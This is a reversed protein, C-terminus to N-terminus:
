DITKATYKDFRKLVRKIVEVHYTAAHNITFSYIGSGNTTTTAVQNFGADLLNVTVGGIGPEGGDQRGNANSDLWVFDGLTAPQQVNITVCGQNSNTDPDPEPALSTVSSCNQKTATWATVKVPVTITVIAGSDM